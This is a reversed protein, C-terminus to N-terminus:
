VDKGWKEAGRWSMVALYSLGGVLIVVIFSVKLFYSAMFSGIALVLLVPDRFVERGMTLITSLMMGFIAAWVGVIFMEVGPIEQLIMRHLSAILVVLVISPLSFALTATLLGRLGHLHYGIYMCVHLTFPGPALESFTVGERFEKEDIWRRQRVIRQYILSFMGAGFSILGMLFFEKALERLRPKGMGPNM